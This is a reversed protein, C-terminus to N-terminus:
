PKIQRWGPLSGPQTVIIQRRCVPLNQGQERFRHQPSTLTTVHVCVHNIVDYIRVRFVYRALANWGLEGAQLMGNIGQSKQALVILM